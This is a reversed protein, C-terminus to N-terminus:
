APIRASSLPIQVGVRTGRGPVSEIQLEGGREETRERMSQLGLHGPFSGSPDFGTGDDRIEMTVVDGNVRLQLSVHKAQSHKVVNRLAEQATRYIAQKADFPIAPEEPLDKTVEIGYRAMVADARKSLADVLGEREFSEPRLELILSRMDAFAAEALNLIYDLPEGVRGPSRALRNRASRAGLVIGYLAQSVSDHLERSLRQREELAAQDQVASVLRFSETASAALGAIAHLFTVTPETPRRGPPFYVSLAGIPRNGTVMPITIVFKWSVERIVAHAASFRGDNLIKAPLDEDVVDTRRRIAELAPREGGAQAAAEMAEIYGAPLGCTAATRLSREGELLFVGAAVADTAEAASKAVADLMREIPQTVAMNSATQALATATRQLRNTETVDRFIAAVVPRDRISILTHSVELERVAGDSRLARVTLRGPSHLATRAFYAGIDQQQDPVVYRLFDSGLMSDKSTALIQSVADNIYLIQGREDIAAMGDVSSDVLRALSELGLAMPSGPKAARGSGSLLRVLRRAYLRLVIALAAYVSAEATATVPLLTGTAGDFVLLGIAVVSVAAAAVTSLLWVAALVPLLGLTTIVVASPTALQAVYILILVALCGAAFPYEWPRGVLGHPVLWPPSAVSRSFREKGAM